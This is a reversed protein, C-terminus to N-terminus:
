NATALEGLPPSARKTGKAGVAAAAAPMPAASPAGAAANVSSITCYGLEDLIARELVPFAEPDWQVDRMCPAAAADFPGFVEQEQLKCAILACAVVGDAGAERAAESRAALSEADAVAASSEKGSLARVLRAVSLEEKASKAPKAKKAPPAVAAAAGAAPPLLLAGVAPLEVKEAGPLMALAEAASVRREPEVELMARLLNPLPKDALKKKVEELHALAHKDKLAELQCGHFMEYLVVGMSFVDAKLGYEGGAVIEPATYTPTGMGETMGGAKAAAAAAAAAKGQKAGKAPRAGAKAAGAAGIVKALSFDAVVPDGAENLMVNDPKLDRHIIGHSHLFALAHLSLAAVRLKAKNSLSQKEIAGMLDGGKMVPMIMATAGGEMLAVDDIRMLNPHAGNLLRLMAIERLIGVDMGDAHTDAPEQWEGDEDEYGEDDEDDKDKSDFFLKAAYEAGDDDYALCVAGYSGEGLTDGRYYPKTPLRTDM